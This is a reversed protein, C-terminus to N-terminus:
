APQAVPARRRVSVAAMGLVAAVLSVVWAAHFGDMLNAGSRAPGAAGDNVATVVALVLAGGRARRAARTLKGPGPGLM